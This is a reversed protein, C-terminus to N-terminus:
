NWIKLFSDWSGTCVQLCFKSFNFLAFYFFLKRVAMGDETIGLCSVRNDHGALVGAVDFSKHSGINSPFSDLFEAVWMYTKHKVLHLSM